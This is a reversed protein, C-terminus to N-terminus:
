LSFFYRRLGTSASSGAYRDPPTSPMRTPSHKGKGQGAAERNDSTVTVSPFETRLRELVTADSGSVVVGSLSCNARQWGALFTGCSVSPRTVARAVRAM